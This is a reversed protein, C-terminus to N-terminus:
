RRAPPRHDGIPVDYRDLLAALQTDNTGNAVNIESLPQKRGGPIVFLDDVLVPSRVVPTGKRLSMIKLWLDDGYRCIRMFTDKDLVDEHVSGPPYLAGAGGTPCLTLSPGFEMPTKKWMSYGTIQDREDFVIKHARNCCIYSPYQRHLRLLEEVTNEPYFLDDDVTIVLADPHDRFAYYYKKHSKLDDCFRVTLGRKQQARLPAPLATPDPFESGALWLIIQDPKVSQRLLTEISMWVTNIRPPFSTLSVIVPPQRKQETVGRPQSGYNWLGQIYSEVGRSMMARIKWSIRTGFEDFVPM